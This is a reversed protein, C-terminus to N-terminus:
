GSGLINPAANNVLKKTESRIMTTEFSCLQNVHARASGGNSNIMSSCPIIQLGLLNKNIMTCITKNASVVTVECVYVSSLTKSM